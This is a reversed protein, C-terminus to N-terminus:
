PSRGAFWYNIIDLFPFPFYDKFYEKYLSTMKFIQENMQEYQDYKCTNNKQVRDM